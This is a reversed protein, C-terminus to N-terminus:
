FDALARYGCEDGGSASFAGLVQEWQAHTLAVNDIVKAFAALENSSRAGALLAILFQVHADHKKEEDSFASQAISAAIEYYPAVDAVFPDECPRADLVPHALGEFMQRAKPRDLTLMEKLVRAQLSIADLHMEGGKGRYLERTDLPTQPIAILRVPEHAASASQFASELLEIQLEKQPVKGAEIIKVIADAYIEPAASRALEVLSQVEPALTPKPKDDGAYALSAILALPISFQM